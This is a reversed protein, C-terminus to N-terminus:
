RDYAPKQIYIEEPQEALSVTLRTMRRFLFIVWVNMDSDQSSLISTRSKRCVMSNVNLQKHEAVNQVTNHNQYSCLWIYEVVWMEATINDQIRADNDWLYTAKQISQVQCCLIPMDVRIFKVEVETTFCPKRCGCGALTPEFTRLLPVVCTAHVIFDCPPFNHKSRFTM